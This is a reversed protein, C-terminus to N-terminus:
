KTERLSRATNRENVAIKKLGDLETKSYFSGCGEITLEILKAKCDSANANTANQQYNRYEVSNKWAKEVAAQCETASNIGENVAVRSATSIKQNRVMDNLTAPPPTKNHTASEPNKGTQPIGMLQGFASSLKDAVSSKSDEVETHLQTLKHNQQDLEQQDQQFGTTFGNAFAQSEENIKANNAEMQASLNNQFDQLQQQQAINQQFQQQQPSVTFQANVGSPAKLNLPPNKRKEDQNRQTILGDIHDSTTKLQGYLAQLRQLNRQSGKDLEAQFDQKISQLGSKDRMAAYNGYVPLRQLLATIRKFADKYIVNFNDVLLSVNAPHNAASGNSHTTVATNGTASGNLPTMAENYFNDPDIRNPLDDSKYVGAPNGNIGTANTTNTQGSYIGTNSSNGYGTGMSNGSANKPNGSITKGNVTIKNIGKARDYLIEYRDNGKYYSVEVKMVATVRKFLHWNGQGVYRKNPYIEGSFNGDSSRGDWEIGRLTISLSAKYPFSHELAVKPSGCNGKTAYQIDYMVAGDGTSLATSLGIWHLGCGNNQGRSIMTVMMLIILLFLKRM